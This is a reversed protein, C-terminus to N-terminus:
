RPRAAPKARPSILELADRLTQVLRLAHDPDLASDVLGSFVVEPVPSIRACLAVVEARLGREAKGPQHRGLGFVADRTLRLIDDLQDASELIRKRVEPETALAATGHLNIGAALIQQVVKEQLDAAIRDRDQAVTLETLRAQLAVAEQRARDGHDRLEHAAFAIVAGLAAWLVVRRAVVPDPDTM